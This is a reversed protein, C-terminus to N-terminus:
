KFKKFLEKRFQIKDRLAAMEKEKLKRNVISSHKTQIIQNLKFFYPNGMNWDQNTTPEYKLGSMYHSAITEVMNLDAGKLKDKYKNKNEKLIPKDLNKWLPNRKAEKTEKNTNFCAEEVKLNIYGLVNTMVSETNSILDEYKVFCMDVNYLNHLNLIDRQEKKWKTIVSYATHMFLPTRLWSAVHDRPDRYLYIFKADPLDKLIALAYKHNHNDKSFYLECEESCAKEQYLAHAFEVISNLGYKNCVKDYDMNLNWGNYEHNAYLEMDKLLMVRNSLSLPLYYNYANGFADCFHPAVPASIKSHNGILTRLLNSGSRESGLLFIGGKNSKSM